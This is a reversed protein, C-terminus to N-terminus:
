KKDFIYELEKEIEGRERDNMDSIIKGDPTMTIVPQTELEQAGMETLEEMDKDLMEQPPESGDFSYVISENNLQYSRKTSSDARPNATDQM